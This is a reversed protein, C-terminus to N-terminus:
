YRPWHRATFGSTFRPLKRLQPGRGGDGHPSTDFRWYPGKHLRVFVHEANAYVTFFQGPGPQGYGYAFTGSVWAWDEPFLGVKYLALSVSSSCDLAQTTRLSDLPAGHGGGYLYGPTDRTMKEMYAILSNYTAEEDSIQPAAALLHLGYADFYRALVKHTRAGYIGDVPLNKAKQFRRLQRDLGSGFTRTMVLGLGYDAARLARKVALVDPGKMGRRLTRILAM